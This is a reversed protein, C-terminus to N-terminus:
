KVTFSQQSAATGNPTTVSIPGSTAGSPVVAVIYTPNRIVFEAPVGNFMVASAGLFNAGALVVHAGPAGSAPKFGAVRPVRPQLGTDLSYVTGGFTTQVGYLKGDSGQLVAPSDFNPNGGIFFSQFTYVTTFEGSTTIRFVSGPGLGTTGYVNGDDAAATGTLPFGGDGGGTFAHEVTFAGKLSVSFLTGYGNAGGFANVGYLKGNSAQAPNGIPTTGDDGSFTHITTLAGSLTLRYVGISSLGYLNGDSAQMLPGVPEGEDATFSHLAVPQGGPVLRYVVSPSAGSSSLAGYLAGNTAQIPSYPTVTGPAWGAFSTVVSVNGKLDSAFLAGNEGSGGGQVVGYLRGDAAQVLSGDPLDGETAGDFNHIFTLSGASTVRYLAGPSGAAVGSSATGYFVGPSTEALTCEPFHPQTTVDFLYVQDFTAQAHASAASACVALLLLPLRSPKSRM